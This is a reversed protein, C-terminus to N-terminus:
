IKNCGGKKQSLTIHLWFNAMISVAESNSPYIPVHEIPHAPAPVAHVAWPHHLPLLHAGRGGVGHDGDVGGDRALAVVAEVDHAAGLVVAVELVDPHGRPPLQCSTPAFM